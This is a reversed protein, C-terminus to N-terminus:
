DEKGPSLYAWRKADEETRGKKAADELVEDGVIPMVTCCATCGDCENDPAQYITSM